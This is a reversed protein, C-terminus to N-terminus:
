NHTVIKSTVTQYHNTKFNHMLCNSSVLFLKFFVLPNILLLLDVSMCYVSCLVPMSGCPVVRFILCQAIALGSFVLTFQVSSIKFVIIAESRRISIKAIIGFMKCCGVQIYYLGM